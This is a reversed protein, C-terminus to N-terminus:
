LVSCDVRGFNCPLNRPEGATAARNVEVLGAGSVLSNTPHGDSECPQETNKFPQGAHCSEILQDPVARPHTEDRHERKACDVLDPVPLVRKRLGGRVPKWTGLQHEKQRNDYLKHRRYANYSTNIITDCRKQKGAEAHHSRKQVM